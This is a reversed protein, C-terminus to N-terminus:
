IYDAVTKAVEAADSAILALRADIEAFAVAVTRKFINENKFRDFFEKFRIAEKESKITTAVYRPYDTVTKDGEEKAVWDWNKYLWDLASEQMRPNRALRIFVSLRDQTRINKSKLDGILERGFDEDKTATIIGRLDDKLEADTTQKYLEYCERAYNVDNKALAVGVSLRLDADVKAIPTKGYNEKIQKVFDTDDSYAMLGMIIPRLRVDDIDEGKQAVIGLRECNKEAINKVFKKFQKETESGPEFFVKLDNVISAVIDWIVPEREEAFKDILGILSASSAHPTRALLQRDILLRLKQEKDLYELNSIRKALQAESLNILYHGSLDDRVELVPYKTETDEGEILLRQQKDGDLVPYGSQTLWPTMFERVDFDAYKSLANWLDDAVTNGYRHAVFYAKLGAFFNDEGMMRMLMFLLRSGKAYVIAPDFLVPIEAVDEVDVSVPQVGPLCDRHLASMIAVAFYDDWPELEPRLQATSYTEMLNAFSENLWLDNWWEMTVLDGFWMHALEHAVVTCVYLKQEVSSHENALVCVERFTVLGWNEMAGAEFDPVALLDLRPLPYPTAFRDDYFDLVDAAYDAAYKMDEIPQNLCAYASIKVGHKSKAEVKNLEGVAFAVLYTSMVPTEAFTVVVKDDQTTRLDSPMNAIITDRADESSIKLKFTAKAAPEDVCPFCERAYHSEFQTVVISKKEGELEYSSRYAGQMNEKIEATYIIKISHTAAPAKLAIEKGDYSFGSIARGDLLLEKITLDVAHLKIQEGKSEGTIVAVGHMKTKNKNFSLDLDYHSPVFYQM